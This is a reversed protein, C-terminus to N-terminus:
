AVLLKQSRYMYIKWRDIGRIRQLLHFVFIHIRPVFLRNSGPLMRPTIEGQGSCSLMLDPCLTLSYIWPHLPKRSCCDLCMVYKWRVKQIFTLLPSLIPLPLLIEFSFFEAFLGPIYMCLCYIKRFPLLIWLIFPM